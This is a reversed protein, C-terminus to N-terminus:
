EGKAELTKGSALIHHARCVNIDDGLPDASPQQLFETPAMAVLAHFLASIHTCSESLRCFKYAGCLMLKPDDTFGM